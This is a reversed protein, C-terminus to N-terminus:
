GFLGSWMPPGQGGRGREGASGRPGRPGGSGGRGEGRLGRIREAMEERAQQLQFVEIPSFLDLLAAQEAAFLDAEQAAIEVLEALADRASGETLPAGGMDEKGLIRVRMQARQRREGLQRRLQGHERTVTMLSEMQADDFGLRERILTDFRQQIQRQM